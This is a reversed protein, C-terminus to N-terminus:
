PLEEGRLFLSHIVKEDLYQGFFSFTNFNCVLLQLVM